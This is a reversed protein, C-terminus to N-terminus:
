ATHLTRRIFGVGVMVLTVGLPVLIAMPVRQGLRPIDLLPQGRRVAAATEPDSLDSGTRMSMIKDDRIEWTVINILREVGRTRLTTNRMELRQTVTNGDVEISLLTFQTRNAIVYSTAAQIMQKGRCGNPPPCRTGDFRVADETHLAVAAASDGREIAEYYLRVIEAPEDQAFATPPFLLGPLVLLACLLFHTARSTM